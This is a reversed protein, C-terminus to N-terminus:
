RRPKLWQLPDLPTGRQRIEFYITKSDDFGSVGITDGAAVVEGVKKVIKSAQAYLTYYGGGHDLILLNGFGRFPKAFVVKGEAVAHMPTGPSQALEIGQSDYRTGLDDNFNTGFRVMLKGQGPWPLSGKQQKFGRSSATSPGSYERTKATELTKLLNRLRQAKEQLGSIEVKLSTRNKRLKSLTTKHTRRGEDLTKQSADLITLRRQQESRLQGLEQLTDRLVRWDDRYNKILERDQRVLRTLYFFNEALRSPSENEFLVKFLRMEGRRYVAALRRGVYQERQSIQKGLHETRKEKEEIDIKLSSLRSQLRQSNRQLGSLEKDLHALDKQAADEQERSTVLQKSLREIRGQIEKLSQRQRDIDDARALPVLSVFLLFCCFLRAVMRYGPYFKM